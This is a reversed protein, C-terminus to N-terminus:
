FAHFAWGKERAVKPLEANPKDHRGVVLPLRASELMEFDGMSDGFALDPKRGLRKVIADVKGMNCTVPSVVKDTLVGGATEVRIGLTHAADCGVFGASAEIIWGNSASVMWVDYGAGRLGKLLEVMQPRYNPWAHALQRCWRKLDSEALGAMCQVCWAYGESRNKAVRAEYEAWVTDVDPPTGLWPLLQGAALWRFL